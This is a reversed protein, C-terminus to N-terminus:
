DQIEIIELALHVRQGALPHNFDVLVLDGMLRRVLGPLEIGNPQTFAVILGEELELEAPFHSRPLNMVHNEDPMGFADQPELAITKKDGVSMGLMAQELPESLSGDGLVFRIPKDNHYTSEAVSGDDLTLIYHALVDATAHIHTM